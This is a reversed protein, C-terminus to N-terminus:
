GQKSITRGNSDPIVPINSFALNKIEIDKKHNIFARGTLSSGKQGSFIQVINERINPLNNDLRVIIRGKMTGGLSLEVFVLSTKEPIMKQLQDFPIFISGDAV